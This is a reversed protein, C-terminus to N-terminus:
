PRAIHDNENRILVCLLKFHTKTCFSLLMVYVSRRAIRAIHEANNIGGAIVDYYFHRMTQTLTM